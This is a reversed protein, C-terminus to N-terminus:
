GQPGTGNWAAPALADITGVIKVRSRLIGSYTCAAQICGEYNYPMGGAWAATTTRRAQWFFQTCWKALDDPNEDQLFGIAAQAGQVVAQNPLDPASGAMATECGLFIALKLHKFVKGEYNWKRSASRTTTPPLQMLNVDSVSGVGTQAIDNGFESLISSDATIYSWREDWPGAAERDSDQGNPTWVAMMRGKYGHGAYVWVANYQMTQDSAYSNVGVPKGVVERATRGATTTAGVVKTLWWTGASAKDTYAINKLYGGSTTMTATADMKLGVKKGSNTNVVGPSVGGIAVFTPVTAGGNRELAWKGADKGEDPDLSQQAEVVFHYDGANQPQFPIIKNVEFTSAENPVPVFDAQAISVRQVVSFDPDYIDLRCLAPPAPRRVNYIRFTYSLESQQTAENYGIKAQTWTTQLSESAKSDQFQRHYYYYSSSTIDISALYAEDLETVRAIVQYPYLGRGPDVGKDTGAIEEQPGFFESWHWSRSVPETAQLYKTYFPQAGKLTHIRVWVDMKKAIPPVSSITYPILPDRLAGQASDPDYIIMRPEPPATVKLLYMVVNTTAVARNLHGTVTAVVGATGATLHAYGHGEGNLTVTSPTIKGSNTSLTVTMGSAPSSLGDHWGQISITGSDKGDAELIGSYENGLVLKDGQVLVSCWRYVADDDRWGGDGDPIVAADDITCSLSVGGIFGPPPVYTATLGKAENAIIPKGNVDTGRLFGGTYTHWTYTLSDNVYSTGNCDTVSDRDEAAAVACALTGDMLMPVPIPSASTDPTDSQNDPAMM